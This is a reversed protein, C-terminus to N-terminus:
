PGWLTLTLTLTLQKSYQASAGVQATDDRELTRLTKVSAHVHPCTHTHGMTSKFFHPCGSDYQVEAMGPRRANRQAPRQGLAFM